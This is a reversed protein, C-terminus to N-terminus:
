LDKAVPQRQEDRKWAQSPETRFQKRLKAHAAHNSAWSACVSLLFIVAIMPVLGFLVAKPNESIFQEIAQLTPSSPLLDALDPLVIVLLAFVGFVVMIGIVWTAMISLSTRPLPPQRFIYGCHACQVRHRRADAYLLAPLFDGLLFLLGTLGTSEEQPVSFEDDRGCAPCQFYYKM